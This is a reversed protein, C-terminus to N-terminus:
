SQERFEGNIFQGVMIRGDPHVQELLGPKTASAQYRVSGAAIAQSLAPSQAALEVEAFLAQADLVVPEAKKVSIQLLGAQLAILEEESLRPALQRGLNAWFEIQEAASRKLVAGALMASEMLSAELRVPSQAKAM